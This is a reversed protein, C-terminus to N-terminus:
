DVSYRAKTQELYEMTRVGYVTCQIISKNVKGHRLKRSAYGESVGEDM